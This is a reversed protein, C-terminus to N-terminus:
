ISFTHVKKTIISQLLDGEGNSNAWSGNYSDTYASAYANGVGLTNVQYFDKSNIKDAFQPYTKSLADKPVRRIIAM